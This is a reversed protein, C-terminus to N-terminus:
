NGGTIIANGEDRPTYTEIYKAIYIYHGNDVSSMAESSYLRPLAFM